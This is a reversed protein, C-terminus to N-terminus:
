PLEFAENGDRTALGYRVFHDIQETFYHVSGDALCAGAV